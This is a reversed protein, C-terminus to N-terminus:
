LPTGHRTDGLNRGTSRKYQSSLKLYRDVGSWAPLSLFTPGKVMYSMDGEDVLSQECKVIFDIEIYIHLLTETIEEIHYKCQTKASHANECWRMREEVVM